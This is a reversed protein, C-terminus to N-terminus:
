WTLLKCLSFGIKDTSEVTHSASSIYQLYDKTNKKM